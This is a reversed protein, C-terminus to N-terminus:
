VCRSTYLLCILIYRLEEKLEENSRQIDETLQQQLSEQNKRLTNSHEEMKENIQQKLTENNEEIPKM